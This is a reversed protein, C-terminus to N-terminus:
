QARELSSIQTELIFSILSSLSRGEISSRELLRAYTQHTLTASVRRPHRFALEVPVGHVPVSSAM